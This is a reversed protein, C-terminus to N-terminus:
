VERNMEVYVDEFDGKFGEYQVAKLVWDARARM